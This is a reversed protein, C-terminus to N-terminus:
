PMASAPVTGASAQTRIATITRKLATQRRDPLAAARAEAIAASLDDLVLTGAFVPKVLSDIILTWNAMGYRYTDGYGRIMTASEVITWVAEPRKALCRDIMHLWREVWIREGPYRISLMRWRRLWAEMKLRRIGLWWTANFRMKVHMHQWGFAGLVRLMPNAVVIPLASVMEDVRFRCKRDVRVTAVGSPDIAAEILALQAIRIPDEYAMREAMLQAIRISLDDGVDRRGAFRRVRDLYLRAYRRGQYVILREVADSVVASLTPSLGDPLDLPVVRDREGIIEALTSRMADIYGAM